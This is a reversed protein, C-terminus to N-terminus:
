AAQEILVARGDIRDTDVAVSVAVADEVERDVLKEM